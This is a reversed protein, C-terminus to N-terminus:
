ARRVGVTAITLWVVLIGLSWLMHEGSWTDHVARFHLWQPPKAPDGGTEVRFVYRGAPVRSFWTSATPNGESWSEGDDVGSYHEVDLSTEEVDGTEENVLAIDAGAWTNSGENCSLEVQISRSLGTLVFPETFTTPPEVKTGSQTASQNALPLNLDAVTRESRMACSAIAVACWAVLLWLWTKFLGPSGASGAGKKSRPVLGFGTTVEHKFIPSCLSWVVEDASREESLKDGGHAYETAEVAEGIEVKWYFEGAVLEVEARVSQTWEYSDGCYVATKANVEVDGPLIPIIFQWNDDEELLFLYERREPVYLLYERWRYRDDDVTTGRVMFGVCIVDRGRLHGSTGLPIVPEVPLKSGPRLAVLAGQTVDSLGGCYKCAVRESLPSAMPLPANCTPCTLARTAVEPRAAAMEAAVAPTPADVSLREPDVAGGAFVIPPASGDGYDVTGFTGGPGSMDAYTEPRDPVPRFPLEGEASIMQRQGREAIRMTPFGPVTVERGPTAESWAPAAAQDVSRTQYWRGQAQALWSWREGPHELFFEQWPAQSSGLRAYQV